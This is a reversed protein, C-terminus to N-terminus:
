KKNMNTYLLKTHRQQVIRKIKALYTDTTKNNNQESPYFRNKLLILTVRRESKNAKKLKNM